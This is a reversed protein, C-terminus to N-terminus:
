SLYFRLYVSLGSYFTDRARQTRLSVDYSNPAPDEGRLASEIQDIATKFDHKKMSSSTALKDKTNVYLSIDKGNVNARAHAFPFVPTHTHAHSFSLLFFLCVM